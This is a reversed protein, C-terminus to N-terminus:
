ELGYDPGEDGCAHIADLQIYFRNAPMQIPDDSNMVRLVAREALIEGLMPLRLFLNRYPRPRDGGLVRHISEALWEQLPHLDRPDVMNSFKQLEFEDSDGCPRRWMAHIGSVVMDDTTADVTISCGQLRAVSGRLSNCSTCGLAASVQADCSDRRSDSCVAAAAHMSLIPAAAYTEAVATRSQACDGQLPRRGESLWFAPSADAADDCGLTSVLGFCTASPAIPPRGAHGAHDCGQGAASGFDTMTCSSSVTSTGSSMGEDTCGPSRVPKNLGAQVIDLRTHCREVQSAVVCAARTHTTVGQVSDVTSSTSTGRAMAILDPMADHCLPPPQQQRRASASHCEQGPQTVAASCSCGSPSVMTNGSGYCSANCLAESIRRSSDAEESTCPAHLHQQQAAGAPESAQASSVLVEEEDRHERAPGCRSQVRLHETQKAVENAAPLICEVLPPSAEEPAVWSGQELEIHVPATVPARVRNSALPSTQGLHQWNVLVIMHLLLIVSEVLVAFASLLIATDLVAEESSSAAPLSAPIHHHLLLFVKLAALLLLALPQLTLSSGSCSGCSSAAGLATVLTSSLGSVLCFVFSNGITVLLCGIALGCAVFIFDVDVGASSSASSTKQNGGVLATFSAIAGSLLLQTLQVPEIEAGYAAVGGQCVTLVLFFTQVCRLLARAFMWRAKKIQRELMMGALQLHQGSTAWQPSSRLGAEPLVDHM